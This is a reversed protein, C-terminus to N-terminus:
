NARALLRSFTARGVFGTAPLKERQQFARIANRSNEDFVGDERGPNLGVTRLGKEILLRSIPNGAVRREEERDKAIVDGSPGAPKPPTLEGLRSRAADSHIGSPYRQLYRRIGEASRGRGTERWFARDAAQAAAQEEAQQAAAKARLNEAQAALLAIQTPTLFGSPAINNANQWNTLAARTGRGFVGDVGRTNYGLDTLNQQVQRRDNRGMGIADERIKARQEPTITLDAIRQKATAVRSSNPFKRVFLEYGDRTGLDQVVKWTVDEESIRPRGVSESQGFIRNNVFGDAKVGSQSVARSLAVVRPGFVSQDLFDFVQDPAGSVFTVGNPLHAADPTQSVGPRVRFNVNPDFAALVMANRPSRAAMDFIASLNTGRLMANYRDINGDSRYVFNTQRNVTAFHGGLVFILKDGPQIESDIRRFLKFQDNLDGNSINLVNYGANKLRGGISSLQQLSSIRPLNNYTTNLIIVATDRAIATSGLGALVFALAAFIRLM